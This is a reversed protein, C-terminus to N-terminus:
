AQIFSLAQKVISEDADPKCSNESIHRRWGRAGPLGHFLGLIHRTMCSLKLGLDLEQRIYPIFAHVIEHRTRAAHNDGYFRKDVEALIYPNHYAERGIM